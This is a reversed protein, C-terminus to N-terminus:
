ITKSQNYIPQNILFPRATPGIAGFWAFYKWFINGIVNEILKGFKMVLKEHNAILLHIWFHVRGRTTISMMADYSKYSISHNLTYFMSYRLFLYNHWTYKYYICSGPGLCYFKRVQTVLLQAIHSILSIQSYLKVSTFTQNQTLKKLIQPYPIPLYNLVVM